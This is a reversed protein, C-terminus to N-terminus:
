HLQKIQPDTLPQSFVQVDRIGGTFWDVPGGSFQARGIALPGGSPYPTPDTTTTNRTGNVYVALQDTTADFTGVLHTWTDLAPPDYSLARIGPAGPQDATVRSFAWRNTTGGVYQLYFASNQAADQSVITAFGPTSSLYAWASVTFSSGAGTNLVPGSTTVQSDTGGFVGYGGVAASSTWTVNAATAPHGGASDPVTADAYGTLAWAGAPTPLTAAPATPGTTAPAPRTTSTTGTPGAPPDGTAAPPTEPTLLVVGSTSTETATLTNSESTQSAFTAHGGSHRAVESVVLSTVLIVVVAGLTAYTPTIRHQRSEDPPSKDSQAAM